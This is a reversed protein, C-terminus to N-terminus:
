LIQTQTLTCIQINTHLVSINLSSPSQEKGTVDTCLFFCSYYDWPTKLRQTHTHLFRSLDALPQLLVQGEIARKKDKKTRAPIGKWRWFFFSLYVSHPCSVSELLSHSMLLPVYQFHSRSLLICSLSVSPMTTGFLHNTPGSLSLRYTGTISQNDSVTGTASQNHHHQLGVATDDLLCFSCELFHGPHQWM